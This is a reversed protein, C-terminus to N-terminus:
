ARERGWLVQKLDLTYSEFLDVAGHVRLGTVLHESDRACLEQRLYVLVGACWVLCM